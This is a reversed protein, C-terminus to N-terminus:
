GDLYFGDGHDIWSSAILREDSRDGITVHGVGFLDVHCDIVSLNRELLVFVCSVEVRSSIHQSLISLLKEVASLSEDINVVSVSLKL